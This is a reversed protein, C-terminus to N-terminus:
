YSYSINTINDKERVTKIWRGNEDTATKFGNNLIRLLYFITVKTKHFGYMGLTMCLCIINICTVLTNIGAEDLRKLMMYCHKPYKHNEMRTVNLWYKICNAIYFTCLVHVMFLLGTILNDLFCSSYGVVASM